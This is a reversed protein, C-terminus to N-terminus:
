SFCCAAEQSGTGTSLSGPGPGRGAYEAGDQTSNAKVEDGPVAAVDGDLTALAM